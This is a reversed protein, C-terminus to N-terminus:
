VTAPKVPLSKVWRRCLVVLAQGDIDLRAQYPGDNLIRGPGNLFGQENDTITSCSDLFRLWQEGTLSAVDARPFYSISIRRLLVSLERILRLNDHHQEFADCIRQVELIATNRLRRRKRWARILFFMSIALLVVVLLGWWGPAPPWWSVAQPLHIDRLGSPQVDPM